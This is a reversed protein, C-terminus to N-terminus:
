HECAGAPFRITSVLADFLPLNEELGQFSAVFLRNNHAVYVERGHYLRGGRHALLTYDLSLSPEGAVEGRVPESIEVQGIGKFGKGTFVAPGVVEDLTYSVWQLDWIADALRDRVTDLRGARFADRAADLKEHAREAAKTESTNIPHRAYPRARQLRRQFQRDDLEDLERLMAELESCRDKKGVATYEAVHIREGVSRHKVYRVGMLGGSQERENVWGLPPPSFALPQDDWVFTEPPLLMERWEEPTRRAPDRGVGLEADCGVVFSLLALVAIPHPRAM